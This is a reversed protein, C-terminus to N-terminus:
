SFIIRYKHIYQAGVAKFGFEKALQSGIYTETVAESPDKGSMGSVAAIMEHTRDRLAPYETPDSDHITIVAVAEPKIHKAAAINKVFEPAFKFPEILFM